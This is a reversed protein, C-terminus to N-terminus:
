SYNQKTNCFSSIRARIRCQSLFSRSLSSSTRARTFLDPNPKFRARVLPSNKLITYARVRAYTSVKRRPALQAPRWWQTQRRPALEVIQCVKVKLFSAEYLAVLYTANEQLISGVFSLLSLSLYAVWTFSLRVYLGGFFMKFANEWKFSRVCFLAKGILWM